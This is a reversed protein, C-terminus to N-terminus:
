ASRARARIEDSELVRVGPADQAAAAVLVTAVDRAHVARYRGPILRGFLRGIAEGLRFEQRAGLLISPRVITLSRFGAGQLADEVEGKVRSYFVRSGADAGLSSVLLFHRAGHARALRALELPYEQDVRRFAAQSGAQGITTGLACIVQDVRFADGAADLRDFDVIREDLRPDRVGLPRRVLAVVRLVTPDALLAHLCEGGVLGTAGALLVTRAAADPM